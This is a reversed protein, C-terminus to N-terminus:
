KNFYTDIINTMREKGEKFQKLRHGNAGSPHPFGVLCQERDIKGEGILSLLVEEVARGLPVILPRKLPKLDKEVTLNVYKMLFKSNIIKPSHGTYNKRNVFVPYPILSVTHLYPCHDNFLEKNNKMGLYEHLRLEDLMNIINMRMTGYFRSEKKCIRATEELSRGEILCKRATRISKEMQVWGPTIGIILIKAEINIFENHTAYYIQLKGEEEILLDPILLDSLLYQDKEPLSTIIREYDKLLHKRM